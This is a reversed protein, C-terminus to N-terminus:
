TTGLKGLMMTAWTKFHGSSENKLKLLDEKSPLENLSLEVESYATKLYPTSEQM